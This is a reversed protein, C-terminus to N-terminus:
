IAEACTCVQLMAHAPFRELAGCVDELGKENVIEELLRMQGDLQLRSHQEVFSRLASETRDADSTESGERLQALLVQSPNVRPRSRFGACALGGGVFFLSCSRGKRPAGSSRCLQKFPPTAALLLCM